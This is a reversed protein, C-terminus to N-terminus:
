QPQTVVVQSLVLEAEGSTLPLPQGRSRDYIVLQVAYHGPPVSRTVVLGLRRVENENSIP